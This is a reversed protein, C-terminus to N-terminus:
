TCAPTEQEFLAHRGSTSGVTLEVDLPKEEDTDATLTPAVLWVAIERRIEDIVWEAFIRRLDGFEFM